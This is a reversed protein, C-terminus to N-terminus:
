LKANLLISAFNTPTFQEALLIDVSIKALSTPAKLKIALPTFTQFYLLLTLAARKLQVLLRTALKWTITKDNNFDIMFYSVPDEPIGALSAIVSPLGNIAHARDLEFDYPQIDFPDVTMETLTMNGLYTGNLANPSV